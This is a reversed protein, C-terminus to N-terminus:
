RRFVSTDIKAVNSADIAVILDSRNFDVAQFQRTCLWSFDYGWKDTLVQMPGYSPDGAHWESTGASDM